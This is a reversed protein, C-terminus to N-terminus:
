NNDKTYSFGFKKPKLLRLELMFLRIIDKIIYTLSGISKLKKIVYNEYNYAEAGAFSMAIM